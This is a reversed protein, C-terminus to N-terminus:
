AALDMHRDSDLIKALVDVTKGNETSIKVAFTAVFYLV